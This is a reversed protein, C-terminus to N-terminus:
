PRILSFKFHFVNARKGARKKAGRKAQNATQGFSLLGGRALGSRGGSLAGGRLLRRRAVKQDGDDIHAGNEFAVRADGVLHRRQDFAHFGFFLFQHLFTLGGVFFDGANLRFKFDTRWFVGFADVGNAFFEGVGGEGRLARLVRDDRFASFDKVLSVDVNLVGDFGDRLGVANQDNVRFDFEVGRALNRFFDDREM